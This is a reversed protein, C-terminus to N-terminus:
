DAFGSQWERRSVKATLTRKRTTHARAAPAPSVQAVRAAPAPTIPLQIVTPSIPKPLPEVRPLTVEIKSHAIAAAAIPQLAPHYLWLVALASLAATAMMSVVLTRQPICGPITSQPLTRVADEEEVYPEVVETMDIGVDVPEVFFDEEALQARAVFDELAREIPLDERCNM